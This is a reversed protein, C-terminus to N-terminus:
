YVSPDYHNANPNLNTAIYNRYNENEQSLKQLQDVGNVITSKLSNNELEKAKYDNTIKCIQNKYQINDKELSQVREALVKCLHKM